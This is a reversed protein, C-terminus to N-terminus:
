QLEKIAQKIREYQKIENFLRQNEEALRDMAEKDLQRLQRLDHLRQKLEKNEKVISDTDIGTLNILRKITADQEAVKDKLQIIYKEKCCIAIAMFIILATPLGVAISAIIIQIM